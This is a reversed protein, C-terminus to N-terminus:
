STHKLWGSECLFTNNVTYNLCCFNIKEWKQPSSAQSLTNVYSSEQSSKKRAQQLRGKWHISMHHPSLGLLRTNRWALFPSTSNKKKSHTHIHAHAHAHHAMFMHTSALPFRQIDKDNMKCVQKMKVSPIEWQILIQLQRKRNSQSFLPGLSGAIRSGIPTPDCTHM